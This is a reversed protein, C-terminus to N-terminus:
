ILDQPECAAEIALRQSSCEGLLSPSRRYQVMCFAWADRYNSKCQVVLVCRGRSTAVTDLKATPLADCAIMAVPHNVAKDTEKDLLFPRLLASDESPVHQFLSEISPSPVQLTLAKLYQPRDGAHYTQIIWDRNATDTPIFNIDCDRKDKLADEEWGCPGLIKNGGTDRKATCLWPASQQGQDDCIVQLKCTAELSPKQNKKPLVLSNCSVLNPDSPRNITPKTIYSRGYSQRLLGWRHQTNSFDNTHLGPQFRRWRRSCFLDCAM